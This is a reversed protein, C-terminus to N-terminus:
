NEGDNSSAHDNLDSMFKPQTTQENNEKIQQLMM